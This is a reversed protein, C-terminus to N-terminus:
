VKSATVFVYDCALPMNEHINPIPEISVSLRIEDQAGAVSGDSLHIRLADESVEGQQRRYGSQKVNTASKWLNDIDGKGLWSGLSVKVTFSQGTGAGSEDNESHFSLRTTGNDISMSSSLHLFGELWYVKGANAKHCVPASSLKGPTLKTVFDDFKGPEGPGQKNCGAACSLAFIWVLGRLITPRM